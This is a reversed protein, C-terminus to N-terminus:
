YELIKIIHLVKILHIFLVKFTKWVMKFLTLKSCVYHKKCIPTAVFKIWPSDCAAGSSFLPNYSWLRHNCFYWSIKNECRASALPGALLPHYCLLYRRYVIYRNYSTARASPAFARLQLKNSRAVLKQAQAAVRAPVQRARWRRDHGKHKPESTPLKTISYGYM